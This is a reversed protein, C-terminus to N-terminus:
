QITETPCPQAMLVFYAQTQERKKLTSAQLIAHTHAAIVHGIVMSIADSDPMAGLDDSAAALIRAIEEFSERPTMM